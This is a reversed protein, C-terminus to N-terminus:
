RARSLVVDYGGDVSNTRLRVPAGGLLLRAARPGANPKDYGVFMGAPLRLELLSDPQMGAVRIREGCGWAWPGPLWDGSAVSLTSDAVLRTSPGAISGGWSYVQMRVRGLLTRTPEPPWEPLRVRSLTDGLLMVLSRHDNAPAVVKGPLDSMVEFTGPDFVVTRVGRQRPPSRAPDVIGIQGNAQRVTDGSAVTVVTFCLLHKRTASRLWFPSMVWPESPDVGLDRLVCSAVEDGGARKRIRFARFPGGYRFSFEGDASVDCGVHATPWSKRRAVDLAEVRDEFDLFLTDGNGWAIQQPRFPHSVSRGAGDVVRVAVPERTDNVGPRTEIM